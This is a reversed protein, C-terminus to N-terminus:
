AAVPLETGIAAPQTARHPHRYPNAAVYDLVNQTAKWRPIRYTQAQVEIHHRCIICSSFNHEVETEVNLTNVWGQVEPTNKDPGFAIFTGDASTCGIDQAYRLRKLSNVRGMHVDKGRRRAEATLRAAGPTLKWEGVWKCKGTEPDKWVKGTEPDKWQVRNTKSLYLESQGGGLFLVDFEDWPIRNMHHQLGDQAVLAARYGRKRIEPLVPRSRQLTKWWDGVVDPAVAFLCQHRMGAFMDLHHLFNELSFPKKGKSVFESWVGNDHAHIGLPRPVNGMLPTLLVGFDSRGNTAERRIAGTLYTIELAQPDRMVRITHWAHMVSLTNCAKRTM